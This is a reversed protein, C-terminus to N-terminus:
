YDIEVRTTDGDADGKLWWTNLNNGAVVGDGYIPTADNPPLFFDSHTAPLPSRSAYTGGTGGVLRRMKAHSPIAPLGAATRAADVLVNLQQYSTTLTVTIGPM